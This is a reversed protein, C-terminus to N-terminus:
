LAFRRDRLVSEQEADHGRLAKIFTTQKGEGEGRQGEAEEEQGPADEEVGGGDRPLTAPGEGAAAPVHGDAFVSAAHPAKM